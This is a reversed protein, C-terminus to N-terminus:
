RLFVAAQAYDLPRHSPASIRGRVLFGVRRSALAEFGLYGHAKLYVHAKYRTRDLGELSAVQLVTHVGSGAEVLPRIRWSERYTVRPRLFFYLSFAGETLQDKSTGTLEAMMTKDFQQSQGLSRRYGLTGVVDFFGQVVGAGLEFRDTEEGTRRFTSTVRPPPPTSDAVAPPQACAARPASSGLCAFGLAAALRLGGRL